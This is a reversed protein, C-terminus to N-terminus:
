KQKFSLRFFSSASGKMGPVDDTNRVNRYRIHEWDGDVVVIPAIDTIPFWTLCDVSGELTYAVDTLGVPRSYVFDATGSTDDMRPAGFPTTGNATNGGLAYEALDVLGDKDNDSTASFGAGPSSAQWASFGSLSDESMLLSGDERVIQVACIGNNNANALAVTFEPDNLGTFVTYNTPTGLTDTGEIYGVEHHASQSTNGTRITRSRTDDVSGTISLVSNSPGENNGYYVVVTYGLDCYDDPIGSFTISPNRDAFSNMLKGDPDSGSYGHSWSNNSSQTWATVDVGSDAGNSGNLSLPTSGPGQGSGAHNNWNDQEFGPAGAVESSGVTDNSRSGNDYNWGIMPASPAPPAKVIQVACIGNNNDNAFSLTFNPDNLGSFVTYNSPGMFEDTAEIFGVHHYASTATNGTRITRTRSDDVSGTLTIVSNSPGENNGYYVVVLYGSTRYDTPVNSFTISPRRDNFAEMLKANPESGSYGHRYSNAMTVSWATVQTGSSAGASNNLSFPVSGAGQGSGAHNNWNAQAFEPIGAVESSGVTDSSSYTNEYNWGISEYVIPSATTTFTFQDSETSGLPHNAVVTWHYTTGNSLLSPQYFKTTLGSATPSGPKSSGDTWLYVNFSTAGSYKWQLAQRPHVGVADAIPAVAEPKAAYLMAQVIDGADVSPNTWNVGALVAQEEPTLIMRWQNVFLPSLDQGAAKSASAFWSLANIRAGEQTTHGGNPCTVVERYFARLWDDGFLKWMKLMASAFMVPQDGGGPIRAAKEDYGYGLTFTELFSYYGSSVYVDIADDIKQRESVDSDNVGLKDISVYRMFVSFGTGFNSFKDGFTTYNRGMEYFFLHPIDTPDTLLRPYDLDYFSAIQIGEGGVVGCGRGCTPAGDEIAAIVPKGNVRNGPSPSWGTFDRYLAWAADLYSVLSSMTEVDLADTTTMLTIEDGTWAYYDTSFGGAAWESPSFPVYTEEEPEILNSEPEAAKVIQIACIGNNNAGSLAVTFSPDNLGTFVTYNTSITSVDTGEVYGVNEWAAAATNGTKISRSRTDDISGTVTLTSTSPGENNGYYVVVSYGDGGTYASSLGSFTVSPTRDNFSNMLKGHPSSGAYGYSWSNATGVSWATVSVGSASGTSDNLSFPVSGAGQGSGAHNNWNDQEYGPAGAVESTGVTDNTRFGNDYNWGISTGTPLAPPPGIKIIQVASLGNNNANSLSVTFSPDNFGSLITYNSVGSASEDGEIFGVNQWASLATNGTQITRTQLDDVSGDVTLVSTSPGENNGYYVVVLYGDAQFDSPISSFTISPNRDNFSNMLLGNADSGTYGHHWSNNMSQSWATVQAGSPSGDNKSLSFPVSGPGQEIGAHNNWNSQTFPAVGAVHGANMTDSGKGDYNWGISELATTNLTSFEGVSSETRGSTNRAVVTWQYTVGPLLGTPKWSNSTLAAITPVFPKASGVPWLFVQYDDARDSTWTLTSGALVGTAGNAPTLLAPTAPVAISEVPATLYTAIDQFGSIGPGSISGILTPFVAHGAHDVRFRYPSSDLTVNVSVAAGSVNNLLRESPEWIGNRNLDVYLSARSGGTEIRLTYTGSGPTDLMARFMQGKVEDSLYPGRFIPQSFSNKIQATTYSAFDPVTPLATRPVVFETVKIPNAWNNYHALTHGDVPTGSSRYLRARIGFGGNPSTFPSSYATSSGTTEDINAFNSNSKDNNFTGLNYRITGAIKTRNRLTISTNTGTYYRYDASYPADPTLSAPLIEVPQVISLAKEKVAELRNTFVPYSETFNPNWLRDAMAPVRPLLDRVITKENQEWSLMQGGVVQSQKSIYGADWMGDRPVADSPGADNFVPTSPDWHMFTNKNWSHITEPSWMFQRVHPGRSTAGSGALYMPKWSCNIIEYGSNLLDWPPNYSSEWSMVIVRDNGVAPIQTTPAGHFGEWVILRKKEGSPKGRLHDNMAEIFPILASGATSEDGGIHFYPSNPFVALMDDMIEQIKSYNSPHAVDADNSSPSLFGSARLKTSHGPLDLEPIITVGREDAYEALAVLDARSYTFNGSINETVEEFPFTFNQDDTFHLHLYRVKYQRALRVVEKITGLSSPERALDIMIGRYASVPSDSITMKPISYSGSSEVISQILTSTGYSVGKYYKSSIVVRDSVTMAYSQDEEDESAAFTGPVTAFQLSIDGAAPQSGGSRLVVSPKIGTTIELEEALVNALPELSEEIVRPVSSRTDYFIRTGSTYSLSGTAPTVSTPQPVLGSVPVCLAVVWLLPTLLRKM